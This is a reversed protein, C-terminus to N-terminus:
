TSQNNNSYCEGNRKDLAKQLNKRVSDGADGAQPPVSRRGGPCAGPLPHVVVVCKGMQHASERLLSAIGQATDEDLSGTPEDALIVPAESALARAIAVRQQQGGSLRLVSRGAGRPHPHRQGGGGPRKGGGAGRQHPHRGPGGTPHPPGGALHIGGGPVCGAAPFDRVATVQGMNSATNDGAGPLFAAAPKQRLRVARHQLGEGPGPRRGFIQDISEQSVVPAAAQTIEGEELTM